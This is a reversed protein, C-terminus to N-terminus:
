FINFSVMTYKDQVTYLIGKVGGEDFNSFFKAKFFGFPVLAVYREMVNTQITVRLIKRILLSLHEHSLKYNYHHLM